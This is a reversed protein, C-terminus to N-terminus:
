DPVNNYNPTGAAGSTTVHLVGNSDYYGGVDQKLTAGNAFTYQTQGEGLNQVTTPTQLSAGILNGSSDVEPVLFSNSDGTTSLGVSALAANLTAPNNSLTQSMTAAQTLQDSTM